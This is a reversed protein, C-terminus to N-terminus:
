LNKIKMLNLIEDFDKLNEVEKELFLKESAYEEGTMNEFYKTGKPIRCQLIAYGFKEFIIFDFYKKLGIMTKASHVFGKGIFFYTEWNLPFTCTKVNSSDYSSSPSITKGLKYELEKEFFIPHYYPKGKQYSVLKYVTIDNEAVTPIITNSFLCM